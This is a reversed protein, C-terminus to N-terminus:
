TRYSLMPDSVHIETGGMFDQQLEQVCRGLHLEGAGAVFHEGTEEQLALGRM